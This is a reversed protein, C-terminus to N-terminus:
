QQTVFAVSKEFNSCFSDVNSENESCWLEIIKGNEIFDKHLNFWYKMRDRPKKFHNHNTDNEPLPLITNYIFDYDYSGNNYELLKEWFQDDNNYNVIKNNIYNYIIKEPNRDTSITNPTFSKDGPLPSFQQNHEVILRNGQESLIDNDPIIVVGKFYDDAMFLNMLSTCSVKLPIIKLDVGFTKVYDNTNKFCFIKKLFFAAEEDELYVKVERPIEVQQTEINSQSFQNNEIWIYSPNPTIKPSPTNHMYVVSDPINGNARQQDNVTLINKFITLSHTTFIIQINLKRAETKLLNILRVQAIHHLGADIEDIILLGGPYESGMERQIKKFSALATFISSLSDQGLSISLTNHKLSPIKSRKKSGKFDHDIIPETVPSLDFVVVRSFLDYIYNKDIQDIIRIKTQKIRDKEYEGIPTMRSMGLYLTPLPVKASDGIKLLSGMSKDQSRPVIKLRTITESNELTESHRTVSCRKLFKNGDCDYEIDIYAKNETSELYDDNEDLHFLEQFNSQYVSDFYSKYTASRIGSCNAILGLITSKGIGNLGGIVTIRDSFKIDLKQLKRFKKEGFNISKLKIKM